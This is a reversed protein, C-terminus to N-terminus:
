EDDSQEPLIVHAKAKLPEETAPTPLPRGADIVNAAGPLAERDNHPIFINVVGAAVNVGGTAAQESKPYIGELKGEDQLVRLATSYDGAGLAHAYLQRRQLLHRALLHEAKADFYKACLADAAAILNWLQREGIQWNREPASAYQVIDPFEAGGLRLALVEHVRRHMEAQTSKKREKAPTAERARKAAPKRSRKPRPTPKKKRKMSACGRTSGQRGELSM